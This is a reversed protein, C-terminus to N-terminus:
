LNLLVDPKAKSLFTHPFNRELLPNRTQIFVIHISLNSRKAKKVAEEDVQDIGDSVIIVRDDRHKLADELVRTLNTGSDAKIRLLVDIIERFDTIPDHVETDFFKLTMKVGVRRLKGALALASAAAFSIKPVARRTTATSYLISGAMSGSKDLYVVYDSIGGYKERVLVKKTVFKYAFLDNILLESPIVSVVEDWRQMTKIGLPLGGLLSPTRAQKFSLSKRQLGRVFSVLNIIIANRAIERFKEPKELFEAVPVGIHSFGEAANIDERVEAATEALEAAVARIIRQAEATNGQRELLEVTHILAEVPDAPEGEAKETEPKGAGKKKAEEESKKFLTNLFHVTAYKALLPDGGIATNLTKYSTTTYYKELMAKWGGKVRPNFVIQTWPKLHVIYSDM